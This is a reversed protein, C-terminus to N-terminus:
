VSVELKNKLEQQPTPQMFYLGVMAVIPFLGGVVFWLWGTGGKHLALRYSIYGFILFEM